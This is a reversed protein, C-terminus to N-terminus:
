KRRKAILDALLGLVLVQIFAMLLIVTNSTFYFPHNIMDFIAKGFGILFLVLALPMFIKLPNFWTVTRIVLTLYGYTDKIPHFTSTGKRPYYDIDVWEVQYASSLMALTITSVWSHGWPLIEMFEMFVDKRLARLGSNLDPINFGSMWMALKRIFWKAPTRLVKLTGAEKSRAGVIMDLGHEEMLDLMRPIEQNPYTGDGDTVVVVDGRAAKIGTNRAFGGGRNARHKLLKVGEIGEVIEASRDTSADDVVIIEYDRHSASMAREIVELDGAIAEEENYVPVVISVFDIKM